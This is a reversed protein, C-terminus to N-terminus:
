KLGYNTIFNVPVEVDKGNDNIMLLLPVKPIKYAHLRGKTVTSIAEPALLDASSRIFIFGSDISEYVDLINIEYEKHKIGIIKEYKSPTVGSLVSLLENDESIFNSAFAKKNNQRATKSISNEETVIITYRDHKIPETTINLIISIPTAQADLHIIKNTRGITKPSFLIVNGMNNKDKQNKPKAQITSVINDGGKSILSINWPENNKDVIEISVDLGKQMNIVVSKSGPRSSAYVVTSTLNLPMSSDLKIAQQKRKIFNKLNRIEEITLSTGKVEKVISSIEKTKEDAFALAPSTLILFTILLLLTQM